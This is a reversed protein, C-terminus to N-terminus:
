WSFSAVHAEGGVGRPTLIVWVLPVMLSEDDVAYWLAVFIFEGDKYGPQSGDESGIYQGLVVNDVTVPEISKLM